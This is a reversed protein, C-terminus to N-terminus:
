PRGPGPMFRQDLYPPFPINLVLMSDDDIRKMNAHTWSTYMYGYLDGDPGIIRHLAPFFGQTRPSSRISRILKSLRYKTEIQQWLEVVLHKDDGKPDFMIASPHDIPFGGCCGTYYVTYDQWFEELAEITMDDGAQASSRLKGYTNITSCRAWLFCAAIIMTAIYISKRSRM